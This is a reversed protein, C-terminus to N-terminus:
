PTEDGDGLDLPEAEDPFLMSPTVSDITTVGLHYPAPGGGEDYNGVWVQYSGAPAPSLTLGPHSEQFDDNCMMTGDPRRVVLTVDMASTALVHLEDFATELVLMHDPEEGHFGVCAPHSRTADVPGGAHGEVVRPDPAFGAAITIV